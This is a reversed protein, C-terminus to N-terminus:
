AQTKAKNWRKRWLNFGMYPLRTGKNAIFGVRMKTIRIFGLHLIWDTVLRGDNGTYHYPMFQICDYRKLFELRLNKM